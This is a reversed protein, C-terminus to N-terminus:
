MIAKAFYVIQQNACALTVLYINIFYRIHVIDWAENLGLIRKRDRMAM